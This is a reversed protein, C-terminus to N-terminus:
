YFQFGSHYRAFNRENQLIASGMKRIRVFDLVGPNNAKIDEATQSSFQGTKPSNTGFSITAWLRFISDANKHFRDYEYQSVCYAGLVLAVTLGTALGIINLAHVYKHKLVLRWAINLYSKLM